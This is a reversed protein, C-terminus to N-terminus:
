ETSSKIERAPKLVGWHNLIILKFMKLSDNVVTGVRRHKRRGRRRATKRDDLMMLSFLCHHHSAGVLTEFISSNITEEDVSAFTDEDDEKDM